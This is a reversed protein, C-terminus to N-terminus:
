RFREALEAERELRAIAIVQDGAQLTTDGAPIIVSDSRLVAVLVCEPPLRLAQVQKGVAGSGPAVTLEVLTAQGERLRLM